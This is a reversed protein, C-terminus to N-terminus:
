VGRPATGLPHRRFVSQNESGGDSGRRSYVTSHRQRQHSLSNITEFGAWYLDAPLPASLASAAMEEDLLQVVRRVSCDFSTGAYNTVSFQRTMTVAEASANLVKFPGSNFGAPTRFANLTFPEGARFWLGFQGAEPGLWLRDELNVGKLARVGPFSKSIGQAELLPLKTSTASM